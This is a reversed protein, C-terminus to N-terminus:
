RTKDNIMQALFKKDLAYLIDRHEKTLPMNQDFCILFGQVATWISSQFFDSLGFIKRSYSCPGYDFGQYIIWNSGIKARYVELIANYTPHIWKSKKRYLEDQLEKQADFDKDKLYTSIHASIAKRCTSHSIIKNMRFWKKLNEQGEKTKQTIVFYMALDIAEDIPRLLTGAEWFHNELCLCAMNLLNIAKSYLVYAAVLASETHVIDLQNHYGEHINELIKIYRRYKEITKSNQLLFRNRGILEEQERRAIDAKFTDLAVKHVDESYALKELDTLSICDKGNKNTRVEFRGENQWIHFQLLSVRLTHIAEDFPILKKDKTM